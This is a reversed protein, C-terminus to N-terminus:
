TQATKSHSRSCFINYYLLLQLNQVKEPHITPTVDQVIYLLTRDWREVGSTWTSGWLFCSWTVRAYLKGVLWRGDSSFSALPMSTLSPQSQSATRNERSMRKAFWSTALIWIWVTSTASIQKGVADFSVSAHNNTRFTWLDALLQWMQLVQSHHVGVQRLVLILQLQNRAIEDEHRWHILTAGTLAPHVSGRQGRPQRAQQRLVIDAQGILGVGPDEM